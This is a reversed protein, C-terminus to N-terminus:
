LHRVDEPAIPVLVHVPKPLLQQRAMAPGDLSKEGAPSFRQPPLQPLAIATALFVVDVVEAAVATAGRTMAEVGFGPHCLSPMFEQRDGVNVHDEGHGMLQPLDDPTMLLVQVVDQEAGRGLREDRESGIRMIDTPQDPDETHQVGPGTGEGVMVLELEPQGPM